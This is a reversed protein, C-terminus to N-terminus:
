ILAPPARESYASRGPDTQAPDVSRALTTSTIPLLGGLLLSAPALTPAVTHCFLCVDCSEAAGAPEGSAGTGGEFEVHSVGHGACIVLYGPTGDSAMAPIRNSGLALPQLLIGAIALWLVATRAVSSSTHAKRRSRPCASSYGGAM